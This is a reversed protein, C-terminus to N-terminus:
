TLWWTLGVVTVVAAGAGILMAVAIARLPYYYKGIKTDKM